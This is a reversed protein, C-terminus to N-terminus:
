KSYKKWSDKGTTFDLDELEKKTLDTYSWTATDPDFPEGAYSVELPVGAIKYTGNSLKRLATAYTCMYEIDSDALKKDVYFAPLYEYFNKIIGTDANVLNNYIEKDM